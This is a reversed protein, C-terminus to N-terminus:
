RYLVTKRRKLQLWGVLRSRAKALRRKIKLGMRLEEGRSSREILGKFSLRDQKCPSPLLKYVKLDAVGGSFLIQDFEKDITIFERALREACRRSIIYAETGTCRVSRYLSRNLARRASGQVYCRRDASGIHIIDADDPMWSTDDLFSPLETSMTVDDELILVYDDLGNGIREWLLRHSLFCGIAGASVPFDPLYPIAAGDVAPLREIKLGLAARPAGGCGM